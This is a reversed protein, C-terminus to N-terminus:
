APRRRTRIRHWVQSEETAVNVWGRRTMVFFGPMTLGHRDFAERAAAFWHLDAEGLDLEGSRTLWPCPEDIDLGDIARTVLDARLGADYSPDHPFTVHAGGPTGVHFVTPLLRRTGAEAVFACLAARLQGALPLNRSDTM